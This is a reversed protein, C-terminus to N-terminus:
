RRKRRLVSARERENVFEEVESLRYRLVGDSMRIVPLFPAKRSSHDWVWDKTVNLRQAVDEVTLLVDRSPMQQVSAAFAM